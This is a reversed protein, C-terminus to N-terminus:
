KLGFLTDSWLDLSCIRIFSLSGNTDKRNMDM